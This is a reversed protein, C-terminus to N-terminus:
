KSRQLNWTKKFDSIKVFGATSADKGYAIVFENFQPIFMITTQYPIPFETGDGYILKIGYKLASEIENQNM